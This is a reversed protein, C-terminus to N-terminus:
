VPEEEGPVTIQQMSKDRAQEIAALLKRDAEQQSFDRALQTIEEALECLIEYHESNASELPFEGPEEAIDPGEIMVGSDFALM